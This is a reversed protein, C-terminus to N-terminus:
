ITPETRMCSQRRSLLGCLGEALAARQASSVRVGLSCGERFPQASAGRHPRRLSQESYEGVRVKWRDFRRYEVAPSAQSSITESLSLADIQAPGERHRCSREFSPPLAHMARALVLGCFLKPM